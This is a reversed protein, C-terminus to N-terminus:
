TEKSDPQQLEKAPKAQPIEPPPSLKYIRNLDSHRKARRDLMQATCTRKQRAQTELLVGVQLNGKLVNDVWQRAEIVADDNQGTLETGKMMAGLGQSEVDINITPIPNILTLVPVVTTTLM